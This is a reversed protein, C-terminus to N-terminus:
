SPRRAPDPPVLRRGELPLFRLRGGEARVRAGPLDRASERGTLVRGLVAQVHDLELGRRHGRVEELAARVLRRQLPRPQRRLGEADLAVGGPYSEDRRLEELRTAVLTEIWDEEEQLLAAARAVNEAVGPHVTELEPALRRRVRNRTLSLDLNSADLRWDLGRSRAYRRLAARRTRLLPRLLLLGDVRRRARMGGLGRLGSGRALNLLVTELQDDATHGLAVADARRERATRAFLELRARRAAAEPSGGHVEVVNREVVADLGRAEALGRVFRADDVSEERWGHDLHVVTLETGHRPSLRVLLDLLVTSDGGGSCAVLLRRVGRLLDLRDIEAAVDALLNEAGAVVPDPPSM